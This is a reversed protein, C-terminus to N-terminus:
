TNLGILTQVLNAVIEGVVTIALLLLMYLCM